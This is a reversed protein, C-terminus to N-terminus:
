LSNQLYSIAYQEYCSYLYRGQLVQRRTEETRLAAADATSCYYLSYTLYLSYDVCYYIYYYLLSSVTITRNEDTAVAAM